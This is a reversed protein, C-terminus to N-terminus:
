TDVVKYHITYGGWFACTQIFSITESFSMHLLIQSIGRFAFMHFYWTRSLTGSSSGSSM